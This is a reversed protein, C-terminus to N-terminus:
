SDSGTPFHLQEGKEMGRVGGVGAHTCACGTCHDSESLAPSASAEVKAQQSLQAVEAQLGGSTAREEELQHQLQVKEDKLAKIEEKLACM